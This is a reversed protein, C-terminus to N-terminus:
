ANLRYDSENMRGVITAAMTLYDVHSNDPTSELYGRKKLIAVTQDVADDKDIIAFIDAADEVDINYRGFDATDPKPNIINTM